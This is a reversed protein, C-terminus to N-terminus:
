RIPGSGGDFRGRRLFTCVQAAVLKSLVMGMHDVQLACFDSAGALRTEHLSVTGDNAGQLGGLIRGIGLGHIGAIVGLDRGGHWAPVGGSLGQRLSRGLLPRLWVRGAMGQAVGSGTVPTGLLVVRGAPLDPCRNFLHLVVIGGLSHAVLNVRERGLDRLFRALRDANQAPTHLLSHYHFFQPEFGCRALRRSLLRMELGSMWIGHVLVVAERNDHMAIIKGHCELNGEVAM